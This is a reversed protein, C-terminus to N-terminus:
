IYVCQIRVIQACDMPQRRVLQSSRVCQRRGDARQRRAAWCSGWASDVRQRCVSVVAEASDVRHGRM